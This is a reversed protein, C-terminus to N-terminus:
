SYHELLFHSKILKKFLPVNNSKEMVIRPLANWIKPGTVRISQDTKVHLTKPIYFKDSVANCTTYWHTASIRRLSPLFVKPIQNNHMKGMFKAVEMEFISDVKLFNLQQFLPKLRTKLQFSNTITKLLRNQRVQLKNLEKTSANGRCLIAYQLYSYALNYYVSILANQPVYRRLKCLVGNAASLKNAVFDIHEHWRLEDDILIGLYKISKTKEIKSGKIFVDLTNKSKTFLLFKTIEVHVSLQNNKLWRDVKQLNQDLSKQLFDINKHALPLVNDDAYLTVNLDSTYTLDNIYILFFIPGLVSGQPVGINIGSISFSHNGVQVM